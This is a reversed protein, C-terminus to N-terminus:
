KRDLGLAEWGQSTLKLVRSDERKGANDISSKVDKFATQIAPNKAWDALQDLKYTYTVKVEQYSGLAMPGDWKVIKDPAKKGWCLVFSAEVTSGAPVIWKSKFEHSFPKAAETLNYRKIKYKIGNPKGSFDKGEIETDIGQVLGVTELARMEEVDLGLVSGIAQAQIQRESIDQPFTEDLCLEGKKEFYQSLAAKFNKENPDAKNETSAGSGCSITFSLLALTLKKM